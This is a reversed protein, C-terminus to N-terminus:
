CRVILIQSPSVAALHIVKCMYGVGPKNYKGLKLKVSHKGSGSSGLPKMLGDKYLGMVDGLPAALSCIVLPNLKM